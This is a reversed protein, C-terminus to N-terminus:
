EAKFVQSASDTSGQLQAITVQEDSRNTMARHTLNLVLL